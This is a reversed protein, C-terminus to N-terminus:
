YFMFLDPQALDLPCPSVSIHVEGEFNVTQRKALASNSVACLSEHHGLFCYQAGVYFRDVEASNQLLIEVATVKDRQIAYLLAKHLLEAREIAQFDRVLHELLEPLLDDRSWLMVYKLKKWAVEKLRVEHDAIAKQYHHEDMLLALESRRSELDKTKAGAPYNQDSEIIQIERQLNSKLLKPDLDRVVEVMGNLLCKLLSGNFDLGEQQHLDFVSCKRTQAATLAQILLKYCDERKTRPGFQHIVCILREVKSDQEPVADAKWRELEAIIPEYDHQADDEILGDPQKLGPAHPTYRNNDTRKLVVLRSAPDHAPYLLSPLRVGAQM